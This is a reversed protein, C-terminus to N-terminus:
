LTTYIGGLSLTGDSVRFTGLNTWTTNLAFTTGPRDVRILGHNILKSESAYQATFGGGGLPGNALTIGPGIIFTRVSEPRSFDKNIGATDGDFLLTGTGGLTQSGYFNLDSASTGGTATLTIGGSLTLGNYVSVRGAVLPETLTAGDLTGSFAAQASAPRTPVLSIVGAVAAALTAASRRRQHFM